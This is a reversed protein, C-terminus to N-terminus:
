HVDNVRRVFTLPKGSSVVRQSAVPIRYKDFIVILARHDEPTMDSFTELDVVPLTMEPINKKLCSDLDQINNFRFSRSKFSIHLTDKAVVIKIHDPNDFANSQAFTLLSIILCAFFLLSHKM